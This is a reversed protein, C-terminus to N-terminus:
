KDETAPLCVLVLEIEVVPIVGAGPLVCQQSSVYYTGIVLKKIAWKLSPYKQMDGNYRQM